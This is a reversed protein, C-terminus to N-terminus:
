GALQAAERPQQPLHALTTVSPSAATSATGAVGANRAAMAAEAAAVAVGKDAELSSLQLPKGERVKYVAELLAKMAERNDERIIKPTSDLYSQMGFRTSDFGNLGVQIGEKAYGVAYGVTETAKEWLSKPAEKNRAELGAQKMGEEHQRGLLSASAITAAPDALLKAIADAGVPDKLINAIGSSHKQLAEVIPRSAEPYAEPNLHRLFGGIAAANKEYKFFDRLDDASAGELKQKGALGTIGNVVRELLPAPTAPDLNKALEVAAAVMPYHGDKPALFSQMLPDKNPYVSLLNGIHTQLNRDDLTSGHEKAVQVLNAINIAAGAKGSSLSFASSLPELVGKSALAHLSDRAVDNTLLPLHQQFGRAGPPLKAPDLNQLFAVTEAALSKRDPHTLYMIAKNTDKEALIGFFETAKEAGITRTFRTFSAVREPTDLLAVLGQTEAGLKSTDVNKLLKSIAEPTVSDIQILKFLAGSKLMDANGAMIDTLLSKLEPKLAGNADFGHAIVFEGLARNQFKVSSFADIAQALVGRTKDNALLRKMSAPDTVLSQVAKLFDGNAEGAPKGAFEQIVKAALEPKREIFSVLMGKNIGSTIGGNEKMIQLFEKLEAANGSLARALEESKTANRITQAQQEPTQSLLAGEAMKDADFEIGFYKLIPQLIPALMNFLSQGVESSKLWDWAGDIYGKAGPIFERAAWTAVALIGMTWIANWAFDFISTVGSWLASLGSGAKQVDKGVKVLDDFESM